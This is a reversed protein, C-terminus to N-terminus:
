DRADTREQALFEAHLKALQSCVYAAFGAHLKDFELRCGARTTALSALPTGDALTVARCAPAIPADPENVLLRQLRVAAPSSSAPLSPTQAVIAALAYPHAQCLRGLGRLERGSAQKLQPYARMLEAPISAISLQDSIWAQTRQLAAGMAQRDNQFALALHVSYFRAREYPTLDERDRNEIEILTLAAV